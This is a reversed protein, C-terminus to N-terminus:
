IMYLRWLSKLLVKELEKKTGHLGLPSNLGPRKTKFDITVRKKGDQYMSDDVSFCVRSAIMRKKGNLILM